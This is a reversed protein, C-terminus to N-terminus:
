VHFIAPMVSNYDVRSVLSCRFKLSFVWLCVNFHQRKKKKILSEATVEFYNYIMIKKLIISRQGKPSRNHEFKHRKEYRYM